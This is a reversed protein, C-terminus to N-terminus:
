KLKNKILEEFENDEIFSETDTDKYFEEDDKEKDERRVSLSPVGDYTTYKRIDSDRSTETPNYKILKRINRQTTYNVGWGTHDEVFKVLWREYNYITPNWRTRDQQIFRIIYDDDYDNFLSKIKYVSNEYKIRYKEIIKKMRKYDDLQDKREKILDKKLKVLEKDPPTNKGYFFYRIRNYKKLKEKEKKTYSKKESVNVEEDALYFSDGNRIKKVLIAKGEYDKCEKFDTYIPLIMGKKLKITIM